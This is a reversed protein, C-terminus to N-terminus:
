GYFRRVVENIKGATPDMTWTHKEGSRDIRFVESPKNDYIQFELYSGNDGDYELQISGAATPFVEPQKKLRLLISEVKYILESSFPGAGYENWNEELHSIQLVTRLNENLAEDIALGYSDSRAIVMSEIDKYEYSSNSSCSDAYSKTNSQSKIMNLDLRELIAKTNIFPRKKKFPEQGRMFGKYSCSSTMNATLTAEYNM